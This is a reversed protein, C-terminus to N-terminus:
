SPPERLGSGCSKGTEESGDTVGLKGRTPPEELGVDLWLSRLVDEQGFVAVGKIRSGRRFFSYAGRLVQKRPAVPSRLSPDRNVYKGGCGCMVLDLYGVNSPKLLHERGATARWSEL